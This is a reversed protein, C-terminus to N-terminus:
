QRSWRGAASHTLTHLIAFAAFFSTNYPAANHMHESQVVTRSPSWVFQVIAGNIIQNCSQLCACLASRLSMRANICACSVARPPSPQPLPHSPPRSGPTPIRSRQAVPTVVHKPSAQRSSAPVAIGQHTSSSYTQRQFSPLAADERLAAATASTSDASADLSLSATHRSKTSSPKAIGSARQGPTRSTGTAISSPKPSSSM